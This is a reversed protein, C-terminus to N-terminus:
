TAANVASMPAGVFRCGLHSLPHISCLGWDQRWATAEAVSLSRPTLQLFTAPSRQEKDHNFRKRVYNRYLRFLHMHNLLQEGKKTVLWSKRRLRGCNDRTMALTTNIPFLPNQVTRPLKGSTTEHVVRDGFVEKAITAYSAKQDTRLVLRGSGLRRDLHRLVNTVCERSRDPRPGLKREEADQWSRRSTGAAALRRTPGVDTAVVFWTDKEILVPMTLTRISAHEYTEEEDLLFIRDGAIERCLHDHLLGAHRSLKRAKAQAATPSIRLVRASQRYGVGSTLLEFLRENAEPRRDRYDQRFTQFSFTRRCNRCRFRPVPEARCAAHYTGHGVWFRPEPQGHQTCVLNPCFPPVFEM